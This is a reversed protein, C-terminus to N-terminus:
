VEIWGIADDAITIQDSHGHRPIVRVNQRQPASEDTLCRRKKVHVNGYPHGLFNRFIRLGTPSPFSLHLLSRLDALDSEDAIVQRAFATDGSERGVQKGGDLC